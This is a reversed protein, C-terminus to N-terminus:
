RDSIMESKTTQNTSHSAAQLENVEIRSCATPEKPRNITEEYCSITRYQYRLVFTLIRDDRRPMEPTNQQTEDDSLGQKPIFNKFVVTKSISYYVKTM